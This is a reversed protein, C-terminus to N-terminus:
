RACRRRSDKTVPPIAYLVRQGEDLRLGVIGMGGHSQLRDARCAEELCWLRRGHRELRQIVGLISKERVGEVLRHLGKLRENVSSAAATRRLAPRATAPEM